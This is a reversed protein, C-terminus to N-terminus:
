TSCILVCRVKRRLCANSTLMEMSEENPETVVSAVETEDDLFSYSNMVKM